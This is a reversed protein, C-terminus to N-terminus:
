DQSQNGREVWSVASRALEAASNLSLKEKIHARYTEITKVSLNLTEAIQRTGKGEGIMRFVELERDSLRDIPTSHLDSQPHTLDHLVKQRINDSVYIKGTLVQRIAKIVNDAMEQKMIYGNAGARLAREAYLTEDHMSVILIPLSGFEARVAKTIEIGDSGQLSIDLLILSPSNKRLFSLVEARNSAEGVVAFDDEQELLARIGKRVIPHDDVVLIGLKNETNAM